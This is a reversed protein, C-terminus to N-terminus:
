LVKNYVQQLKKTDQNEIKALKLFFMKAINTIDDFHDDLFKIIPATKNNLAEFSIKLNMNYFEDNFAQITYKCEISEIGYKQVLTGSYHSEFFKDFTTQQTNIQPPKYYADLYKEIAKGYIMSINAYSVDRPKEVYRGLFIDTELTDESEDFEFNKIDQIFEEEKSIVNYKEMDAGGKILGNRMLSKLFAKRITEYNGDIDDVERLFMNYDDTDDTSENNNFLIGLSIKSPDDSWGGTEKDQIPKLQITALYSEAFDTNDYQEFDKLFNKYKMVSSKENEGRFSYPVRKAWEYASDPDYRKLSNIEDTDTFEVFDDVVQYEGLDIIIEGYATYYVYDEDGDVYYSANCHEFEHQNQFGSLEEEFQAARDVNEDNDEHPTSGYFIDTDYMSNFLQSDGSDAYTGGTKIIKKNKFLKYLNDVSFQQSNTLLNKVTDYFGPIKRGYIKGEPVGIESDENKIEYRRIRLRSIAGIGKVNREQDEFIEENQFEDESLKNLDRTNVVYAVGGGTVAEQIACQFYAGGQSHCSTIDSIDSMRLVDIPNRSVVVSYRKLDDMEPINSEYNAFWNLYKKKIEQDIKLSNIVKGLNIRQEKEGGGYKPDLKIKRIVEKKAPDFRDFDKIKSIDNLINNYIETGLIPIIIRLKNKFINEFPLVHDAAAKKIVDVYKQSVENIIHKEYLFSLKNLDQNM